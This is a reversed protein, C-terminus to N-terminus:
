YLGYIPQNKSLYSEALHIGGFSNTSLISGSVWNELRLAQVSYVHAGDFFPLTKVRGKEYVSKMRRLSPLHM